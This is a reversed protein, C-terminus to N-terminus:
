KPLHKAAWAVVEEALRLFRTAPERTYMESPVGITADPYRTATYHPALELCAEVVSNPADLARALVSLGHGIYPRRLKALYAAKLAKEAAQQSFFAVAYWNGSQLNDAATKLDAQAQTM